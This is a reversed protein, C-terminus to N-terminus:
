WPAVALIRDYGSGPVTGLGKGTTADQAVIRGKGRVLAFVVNGDPTIGLGDIASGALDRRAVTLDVTRIAVIGNAGAAFLMKGDPSLVVRRDASGLEAHGFKALVINDAAGRAPSAPAAATTAISASRRVAFQSPDIDVVMGLTANVAYVASGNATPALGWDLSARADGAAGAPLDICLAWAEASSLAHVFPHEPGNYLTLVLGGPRRVQAIASGSMREDPNAKDVIVGDRMVGTRVDIARVQYRGGDKADLHQIVYLVDGSPSLTDYEFAGALEIVRVIRLPAEGSTAPKDQLAHELVAFRSRGASRDYVRDEVLAITTGDLSRGVPIPDLGVTPLRWRGPVLLKPGDGGPQVLVDSVITDVGETTTTVVREWSGRPSGAPVAFAEEATTSLILKLDATGAKGILLWAKSPEADLGPLPSREDTAGTPGATAATTPSTSSQTAPASAARCGLLTVAVLGIALLRPLSATRM